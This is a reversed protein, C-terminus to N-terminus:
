PTLRERFLFVNNRNAFPQRLYYVYEGSIKINTIDTYSLEKIPTTSFDVRNLLHIVLRSKENKYATFMQDNENKLVLQEWGPAKHFIISDASKLETNYSYRNATNKYFDFILLGSDAKFFPTYVPHVGYRKQMEKQKFYTIDSRFGGPIIDGESPDYFPFLEELSVMDKAYTPDHGPYMSKVYPRNYDVIANRQLVEDKIVCFPSVQYIIKEKTDEHFFIAIQGTKARMTLYLYQDHGGCYYQITKYFREQTIYRTQILGKRIIIEYVQAPTIAYIYGLGSVHFKEFSAPIPQEDSVKLSADLLILRCSKTFYNYLAILTYSPTVVYDLVQTEKSGFFLHAPLEPFVETAPLPVTISKLKIVQRSLGPTISSEHSEYGVMTIKIARKREGTEFFLSVEGSDNSYVQIEDEGITVSARPLPRLTNSDVIKVTVEQASLFHYIFVSVGFLLWKKM